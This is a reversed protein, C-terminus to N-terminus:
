PQQESIEDIWLLIPPKVTTPGAFRGLRITHMPVATWTGDPQRHLHIHDADPLDLVPATGRYMPTTISKAIVYRPRDATM